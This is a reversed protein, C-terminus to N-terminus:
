ALYMGDSHWTEYWQVGDYLLKVLGTGSLVDLTSTTDKLLIQPYGTESGGSNQLGGVGTNKLLIEQGPYYNRTGLLKLFQVGDYELFLGDPPPDGAPKAGVTVDQITPSTGAIPTAPQYIVKNPPDNTMLNWWYSATAPSYQLVLTITELSGLTKYVGDTSQHGFIPAYEGDTGGNFYLRVANESGAISPTANLLRIVSGTQWGEKSIRRLDGPGMIYATNYEGMSINTSVTIATAPVYALGQEQFRGYVRTRLYKDTDMGTQLVGNTDAVDMIFRGGNTTDSEYGLRGISRSNSSTDLRNWAVYKHQGGTTDPMWFKLGQAAINDADTSGVSNNEWPVVQEIRRYYGLSNDWTFMVDGVSQVIGLCSWAGGPSKTYWPFRSTYAVSWRNGVSTLSGAAATVIQVPYGSSYPANGEIDCSILRLNRCSADMVILNNDDLGSYGDIGPGQFQHSTFTTTMSQRQFNALPYATQAAMRIFGIDISAAASRGNTVKISGDAVYWLWSEAYKWGTGVEIVPNIFELSGYEAYAVYWPASLSVAADLHQFRCDIFRVGYAWDDYCHVDMTTNNSFQCRNFSSGQTTADVEYHDGNGILVAKGCKEIYCDNFVIGSNYTTGSLAFYVATLATYDGNITLRNVDINFSGQITLATIASLAKFSSGNGNLTLFTTEIVLGTDIAYTKDQGLEVRVGYHRASGSISEFMNALAGYDDTAGDAVAGFWSPRVQELGSLLPGFGTPCDFHQTDDDPGFIAKMTLNIEAIWKLVGYPEFEVDTTFGPDVTLKFTGKPILLVADKAAAATVARTIATDEVTTGNGQAGFHRINYKGDFQRIWRGSAPASDPVIVTGYDETSTSSADWAFWGGGGDTTMFMSSHLTSYSLVYAAGYGATPDLARLAAITQVCIVSLGTSGFGGQNINDAQWVPADLVDHMKLTYSGSDLFAMARGAADLVVPNDLATGANSLLAKPTSTGNAYSYLM